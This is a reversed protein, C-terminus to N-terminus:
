AEMTKIKTITAQSVRLMERIQRISMGDRLAQRIREAKPHQRPAPVDAAERRRELMRRINASALRIADVSEQRLPWGDVTVPGCEWCRRWADVSWDSCERCWYRRQEAPEGAKM